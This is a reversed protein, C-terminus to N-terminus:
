LKIVKHCVKDLLQKEHSVLLVSCGVAQSMTVLLTMTKMAIIPDLRTTPEDAIILKPKLLLAKLLAFCQLEGGSVESPLRSLLAKDLSLKELLPIVDARSIHHLKCLDDIGQEITM